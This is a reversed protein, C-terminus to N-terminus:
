VGSPRERLRRQLEGFRESGSSTSLSRPASCQGRILHLGNVGPACVLSTPPKLATPSLPRTSVELDRLPAGLRKPILRNPRWPRQLPARLYGQGNVEGCRSLRATHMHPRFGSYAWCLARSARPRFAATLRASSSLTPMPSARFRPGVMTRGGAVEPRESLGLPFSDGEERKSTLAQFPDFTGSRCPVGRLV